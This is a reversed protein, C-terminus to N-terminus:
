PKPGGRALWGEKFEWPRGDRSEGEPPGHIWPITPGWAAGSHGELPTRTAGPHGELPGPVAKSHAGPHGELPGRTTRWHGRFPRRTPGRTAKSHDGSPGRTAGSRGGLPGGPPTRTAGPHGEPQGPVAKSYGGPPGRTAGYHAGLPGRTSGSNVELPGRTSGSHDEPPAWPRQDPAFHPFYITWKVFNSNAAYKSGPSRQMYIDWLYNKKPRIKTPDRSPRDELPTAAPQECETRTGPPPDGAPPL